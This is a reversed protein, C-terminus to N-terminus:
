LLLGAITSIDRLGAPLDIESASWDSPTTWAGSGRTVLVTNAHRLKGLLTSAGDEHTIISAAQDTELRCDVFFRSVLKAAPTHDRVAATQVNQFICQHYLIAQAMLQDHCYDQLDLNTFAVNSFIMLRVIESSGDTLDPFHTAKRPLVSNTVKVTDLLEGMVLSYLTANDLIPTRMGDLNIRTAHSIKVTQGETSGYFRGIELDQVSVTGANGSQSLSIRLAMPRIRTQADDTPAESSVRIRTLTAPRYIRIQKFAANRVDLRDLTIAGSGGNVTIGSHNLSANIQGFGNVGGITGTAGSAVVIAADNEDAPNHPRDPLARLPKTAQISFDMDTGTLRLPSFRMNSASTTYAGGATNLAAEIAAKYDTTGSSTGTGSYTWSGWYAANDLAMAHTAVIWDASRAVADIRVHSLLSHFYASRTGGSVMSGLITQYLNIGPDVEGLEAAASGREVGNIYVKATTGNYVAVLHNWQGGTLATSATVSTTGLEGGISFKPRNTSANTGELLFSQTEDEGGDGWRAVLARSVATSGGPQILCSITLAAQDQDIPVAATAYDNSGDFLTSLGVPSQYTGAVLGGSDTTTAQTVSTDRGAGDLWYALTDSDAIANAGYTEHDAYATAPASGQYGAWIRITEGGEITRTDRFLLWGTPSGGNYSWNLVKMPLEVDAGTTVRIDEGNDQVTAKWADPLRALDIMGTLGEIPNDPTAHDATAYGQWQTSDLTTGAPRERFTYTVTASAQLGDEDTVTYRFVHAGPLTFGTAQATQATDDALTLDSPGSIYEWKRATIQRGPGTWNSFAIGFDADDVDADNDLDGQAQTKGTGGPGTFNSFMIGLDNDDVDGDQDLDGERLSKGGGDSAEDTGVLLLRGHPLFLTQDTGASCTPAAAVEAPLIEITITTATQAGGNDTVTYRFTHAGAVTFGSVTATATSSGDITPTQTPGSVYEWLRTVVTGDGDADVATLTAQAGPLQLSGAPTISTITPPNNVPAANVRINMVDSRSAGDDDTATYRFTYLGAASLGTVGTSASSASTISPTAPGSVFEWLHTSITGDPDSADGTLTATATPQVIVQDAGANVTPPINTTSSGVNLGGPGPPTAINDSWTLAPLETTFGAGQMAAEALARVTNQFDAVHDILPRWQGRQRAFRTNIMSETVAPWASDDFTKIYGNGDVGNKETSNRIFVGKGNSDSALQGFGFSANNRLTGTGASSGGVEIARQNTNSGGKRYLINEAVQTSSRTSFVHCGVGASEESNYDETDLLINGVHSTFYKNTGLTGGTGMAGQSQINYDFQGGSRLQASNAAYNTMWNNQIIIGAGWSANYINHEEKSANPGYSAGRPNDEDRSEIYGCHDFSNDIFLFNEGLGEPKIPISHSTRANCWRFLCRRVHGTIRGAALGGSRCILDQLFIFTDFYEFVCDEIILHLSGRGGSSLNNGMAVMIARRDNALYDDGPDGTERGDFHLGIIRVTLNNTGVVIRLGNNEADVNLKPRRGSTPNGSWIYDRSRSEVLNIGNWTDGEDFALQRGHNNIEAQIAANNMADTVIVANADRTYPTWGNVGLSPPLIINAAPM